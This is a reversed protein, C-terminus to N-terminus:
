DHISASYRKPEDDKSKRLYVSMSMRPSINSSSQRMSPAKQLHYQSLCIKKSAAGASTAEVYSECLFSSVSFSPLFSDVAFFLHPSQVCSCCKIVKDHVSLKELFRKTRPTGRLSWVSYCTLVTVIIEAARKKQNSLRYHYCYDRRSKGRM